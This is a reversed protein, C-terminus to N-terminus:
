ALKCSRLCSDVGEALNVPLHARWADINGGGITDPGGLGANVVDSPLMWYNTVIDSRGPDESNLAAVFVAPSCTPNQQYHISGKPFVTGQYQGLETEIATNFGNEQVLGTYMIGSVVTFFEDARPHTHPINLGCPEVLSVAASIGLGALIPFNDVTSLLISGGKAGASVAQNNFDFVTLQRLTDGTLLAGSGDTLLKRFRDNVSALTTLGAAISPGNPILPVPGPTDVPAAHVLISGLCSCLIVCAIFLM